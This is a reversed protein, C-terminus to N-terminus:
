PNELGLRGDAYVIEALRRGPTLNFDILCVEGSTVEAHHLSYGSASKVIMMDQDEYCYDLEAPGQSGPDFFGIQSRHRGSGWSYTYVLEQVGDGDFDWAKIDMIGMGGFYEGLQYIKGAYLLYSACSDKMKYIQFGATESVGPPTVTYCDVGEQGLLALFSEVGDKSGRIQVATDVPPDTNCGTVTLCIAIVLVLVSTKMADGRPEVFIELVIKVFKPLLFFLAVEM